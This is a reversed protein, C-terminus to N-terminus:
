RLTPAVCVDPPSGPVAPFTKQASQYGSKVATVTLPANRAAQPVDFTFSGDGATQVAEWSTGTSPSALQVDAGEVPSQTQCDVIRGRMGSTTACACAVSAALAVLSLATHM